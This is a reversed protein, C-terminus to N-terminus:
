EVGEAADALAGKVSERLAQLKTADEKERDLEYNFAEVDIVSDITQRLIEQLDTEELADLEFVDHGYSEVFRKYNTSTVKAQENPPLDFESVQDFTLAIKIADINKIGFDDRLSRALSHAIEQGDPDFDSVVLLVLRDKGSKEFRQAIQYRPPLSCFGRGITMPICFESAVPSIIPKVTNKEGVIEIHNPQSQMLDRWYGKLFDNVERRLYSQVDDHLGWTHVPLTEDSIANM